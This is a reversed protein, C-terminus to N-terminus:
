GVDRLREWGQVTVRAGDAIEEELDGLVAVSLNERTFAARAVDRIDEIRVREIQLARGDLTDSVDNLLNTGYFNALAEPNDLTARLEWLYRRKAKQLEHRTIVGDRLESVLSLIEDILEPTKDHEVSAGIDVVGCDEYMDLGAFVEYALGKDDAIRRHLRTSMGDDLIRMLLELAPRRKDREGFTLFSVRVDSQTGLCALYRLYSPYKVPSPPAAVARVGKPIARMAARAHKIVDRANVNGTVVLVMNKACYFTRMHSRLDDVTFADINAPTGTIKQGLPHPEFLTGRSLDEVDVVQGHEDLDRLIEEKVVGKEVNMDAFVPRTFVEGLLGIAAAANEFPLTVQYVTYDAHTAASLTGGIDEVAYNLAYSTPHVATGRFLMHELFHSLGNTEATEFRSGAKVYMAVHATQLHPQKAVVIKLGNALTHRVLQSKRRVASPM